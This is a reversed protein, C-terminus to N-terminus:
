GKATAIRCKGARAWPNHPHNSQEAECSIALDAQLVQDLAERNLVFRSVPAVRTVTLNNNFSGRSFREGVANRVPVELAELGPALRIRVDLGRANVSKVEWQWGVNDMQGGARAFGTMSAITM